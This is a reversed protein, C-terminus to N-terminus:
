ENSASKETENQSNKEGEEGNEQKITEEKIEVQPEEKEDSLQPPPENKSESKTVESVVTALTAQENMMEEISMSTVKSREKMKILQEVYKENIQNRKIDFKNQVSTIGHIIRANSTLEESIELTPRYEYTCWSKPWDSLPNENTIPVPVSSLPTIEDNIDFYPGMTPTPDVFLTPMSYPNFAANEGKSFLHISGTSHGFAVANCTDSLLFTTCLGVPPVQAQYLQCYPSPTSVNTDTLQFCGSKFLFNFVM